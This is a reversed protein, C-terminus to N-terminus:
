NMSPEVTRPVAARFEPLAARVVEESEAPLWVM